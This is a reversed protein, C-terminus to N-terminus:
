LCKFSNCRLTVLLSKALRKSGDIGSKVIMEIVREITGELEDHRPFTKKVYLLAYLYGVRGYLLEDPMEPMTRLYKDELALLELLDENSKKFVAM